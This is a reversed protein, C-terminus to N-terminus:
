KKTRKKAKITSEIAKNVAWYQHYAALKKQTEKEKEFVIFNRVIDL